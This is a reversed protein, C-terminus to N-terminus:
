TPPHEKSVFSSPVPLVDSSVMSIAGKENGKHRERIIKVMKYEM